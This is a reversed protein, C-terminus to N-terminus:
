AFEAQLTATIRGEFSDLDVAKGTSYDWVHVGLDALRHLAEMTHRSNSGFRDLDFLVLAKFTGAEADRLMRPFEPRAAFEFGSVGDDIYVHREDLAWGRTAVLDRAGAVQRAVSKAEEVVGPQENSKRAYIAAQAM